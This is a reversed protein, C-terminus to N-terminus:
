RFYDRLNVEAKAATAMGGDLAPYFLLDAALASVHEPVIANGGDVGTVQGQADVDVMLPYDLLDPNDHSLLELPALSWAPEPPLSKGRNEAVRELTLYELAEARTLAFQKESRNTALEKGERYLHLSFNLLEFDEPMGTQVFEIQRPEPDISDTEHFIIVDSTKGELDRISAVAVVYADRITTPASVTAKIRLSNPTGDIEELQEAFFSPDTMAMTENTVTAFQAAAEGTPDGFDVVSGDPLTQSGSPLAEAARVQAEAADVRDQQYTQLAGQRRMWEMMEATTDYFRETDLQQIEVPARSVKTTHIFQISSLQEVSIEEGTEEFRVRERGFDAVNLIDGGHRVSVDIGVFLRYDRAPESRSNVSRPEATLASCLLIGALAICSHTLYRIM